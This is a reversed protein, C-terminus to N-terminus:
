ESWLLHVLMHPNPQPPLLVLLFPHIPRGGKSVTGKFPDKKGEEM